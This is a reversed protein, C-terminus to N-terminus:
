CSQRGQRVRSVRRRVTIVIAGHVLITVLVALGHQAFGAGNEVSTTYITYVGLPLFLFLSTWFGPNYRRLVAGMVVHALGNIATLYGALFAFMPNIYVTLYLAALGLFWVALMNIWFIARDGLVEAGEGTMRNVFSKFEGKSHEEYQHIMYVPLLLYVLFAETGVGRCVFPSLLLLLIGVPLSAKAWNRVAWDYYSSDSNL